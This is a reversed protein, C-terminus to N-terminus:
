SSSPFRRSRQWLDEAAGLADFYALMGEAYRVVARGAGIGPDVQPRGILRERTSHWAQDTPVSGYGRVTITGYDHAAFEIEVGEGVDLARRYETPLTLQANPRLRARARIQPQATKRSCYATCMATWLAFGVKRCELRRIIACEALWLTVREVDQAFKELM